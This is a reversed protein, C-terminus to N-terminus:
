QESHVLDVLNLFAEGKTEGYAQSTPSDEISLCAIWLNDEQCYIFEVPLPVDNKRIYWQM